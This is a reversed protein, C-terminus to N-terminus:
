YKKLFTALNKGSKSNLNMTKLDIYSVIQNIVDACPFDPYICTVQTTKTTSCHFIGELGRYKGQIEKGSFIRESEEM